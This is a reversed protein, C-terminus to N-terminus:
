RLTVITVGAGGLFGDSIIVYPFLSPFSTNLPHVFTKDFLPISTVFFKICPASSVKFIAFSCLAVIEELTLDEIKEKLCNAIAIKFDQM